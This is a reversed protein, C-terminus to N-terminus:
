LRYCLDYTTSGDIAYSTESDHGQIAGSSPIGDDYQNDIINAADGPMNAFCINNGQANTYADPTVVINGGFAHAPATTDAPDGTLLNARRLMEYFGTQEDAEIVGNANGTNTSLLAIASANDDGPLAKYRQQYTLVASVISQSDNHINKIKAGNILEQGKLVGGLLLGIIVLVIAMEVLTFGKQRVLSM